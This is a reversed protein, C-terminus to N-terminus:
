FIHTVEKQKSGFDLSVAFRLIYMCPDTTPLNIKLSRTLFNLTRGLDFVNVQLIETYENILKLQWIFFCNDWYNFRFFVAFMM